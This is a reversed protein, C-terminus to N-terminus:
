NVFWGDMEVIWFLVFSKAVKPLSFGRHLHVECSGGHTSPRSAPCRWCRWHDPPSSKSRACRWRPHVDCWRHLVVTINARDLHAKQYVARLCVLPTPRQQPSHQQGRIYPLTGHLQGQSAVSCLVHRALSFSHTINAFSKHKTFHTCWL